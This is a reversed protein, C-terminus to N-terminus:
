VNKLYEVTFVDLQAQFRQQALAHREAHSRTVGPGAAPMDPRGSVKGTTSWVRNTWRGPPPEKLVDVECVRGTAPDTVTFRASLPATELAHM